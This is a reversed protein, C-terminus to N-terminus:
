SEQLASECQKKPQTPPPLACYPFRRCFLPAPVDQTFVGNNLSILTSIYVIVKHEGEPYGVM